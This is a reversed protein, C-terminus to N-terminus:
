RDKGGGTAELVDAKTANVNTDINRSLADQHFHRPTHFHKTPLLGDLLSRPTSQKSRLSKGHTGGSLYSTSHIRM